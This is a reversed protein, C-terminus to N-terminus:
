HPKKALVATLAAAVAEADAAPPKANTRKRHEASVAISTLLDRAATDNSIARISQVYLMHIGARVLANYTVRRGYLTEIYRSADELQKAADERLRIKAGSASTAPTGPLNPIAEYAELRLQDIQTQTLL